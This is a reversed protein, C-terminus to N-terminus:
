SLIGCPRHRNLPKGETQRDTQRDTQRQVTACGRGGPGIARHSHGRDPSREETSTVQALQLLPGFGRIRAEKIKLNAISSYQCRGKESSARKAPSVATTAATNQRHYLCFSPTRSVGGPGLQAAPRRAGGERPGRKEGASGHIDRSGLVRDQTGM